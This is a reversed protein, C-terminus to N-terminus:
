FGRTHMQVFIQSQNNIHFNFKELIGSTLIEHFKVLFFNELLTVPRSLFVSIQCLTDECFM